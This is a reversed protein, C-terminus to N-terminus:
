WFAVNNTLLLSFFAQEQFGLVYIIQQLIEVSSKGCETVDESDWM